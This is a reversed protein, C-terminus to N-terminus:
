HAAKIDLATLDIVILGRVTLAFLKLVVLPDDGKMRLSARLPGYIKNKLALSGRNNYHAIDVIEIRGSSSGVFALRKTDPLTNAGDAQPHLAIGAGDDFSDYIGQLRLHFPNDVSAFYSQIGHSAVTSGHLDLALGFVRESANETLDAVTTHPSFFIPFQPSLGGVLPDNSMMVRGATGTHGEGFAIWNKDFSSAVFTTDTLGLTGLDLRLKEEVDSGLRKM